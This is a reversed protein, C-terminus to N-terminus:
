KKLIIYVELRPVFEKEKHLKTAFEFICMCQFAGQESFGILNEKCETKVLIFWLPFVLINIVAEGKMGKRDSVFM